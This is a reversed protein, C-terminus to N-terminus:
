IEKNVLDIFEQYSQSQDNKLIRQSIKKDEPLEECFKYKSLDLKQLENKDSVQTNLIKKVDKYLRNFESGQYDTQRVEEIQSLLNNISSKHILLSNSVNSLYDNFVQPVIKDVKQLHGQHHTKACVECTLIDCQLCLINCSNNPHNDCYISLIDESEELLKMIEPDEKYKDILTVRGCENCVRGRTGDLDQKSKVCKSCFKHLCKTSIM